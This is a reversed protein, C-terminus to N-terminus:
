GEDLQPQPPQASLKAKAIANLLEQHAKDIQIATQKTFTWFNAKHRGSRSSVSASPKKDMSHILAKDCRLERDLDTFALPMLRSASDELPTDITAAVDFSAVFCVCRAGGLKVMGRNNLPNRSSGSASAGEIADGLMVTDRTM